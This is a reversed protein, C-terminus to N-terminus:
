LAGKNDRPAHNAGKKMAKQNNESRESLAPSQKEVVQAQLCRMGERRRPSLYEPCVAIDLIFFHHNMPNHSGNMM